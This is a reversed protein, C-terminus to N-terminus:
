PYKNSERNSIKFRFHDFDINPIPMIFRSIDNWQPRLLIPSPAFEWYAINMMAYQRYLPLLRESILMAGRIYTQFSGSILLRGGDVILGRTRCTTNILEFQRFALDTSSGASSSPAKGRSNTAGRPAGARRRPSSDISLFLTPQILYITKHLGHKSRIHKNVKMKGNFGFQSWIKEYLLSFNGKGEQLCTFYSLDKGFGNGCEPSKAASTEAVHFSRRERLGEGNM